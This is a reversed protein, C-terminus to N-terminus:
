PQNGIGEGGNVAGGPGDVSEAREERRDVVRVDQGRVVKGELWILLVDGALALYFAWEGFIGAIWLVGTVLMVLYGVWDLWHRPPRVIMLLAFFVVTVVSVLLKSGGTRDILYVAALYGVLLGLFFVTQRSLRFPASSPRRPSRARKTLATGSSRRPPYAPRSPTPSSRRPASRRPTQSATMARGYRGDDWNVFGVECQTHGCGAKRLTARPALYEGQPRTM